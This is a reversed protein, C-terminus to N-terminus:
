LNLFHIFFHPAPPGGLLWLMKIGSFSISSMNTDGGSISEYIFNQGGGMQPLFKKMVGGLIAWGGGGGAPLYHGAGLVRSPHHLLFVYM